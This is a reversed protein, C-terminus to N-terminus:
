RLAQLQKILIQYNDNLRYYGIRELPAKILNLEDLHHADAGVAVPVELDRIKTFLEKFKVSYYTSYASNFEYFINYKKLFDCLQNLDGHIFYSPDFHALGLMPLAKGKMEVREKWSDILNETFKLTEASNLYELLILDFQSPHILKTIYDFSTGLDVEIGKLVKLEANQSLLRKNQDSISKLYLNIKKYTDLTKIVGAKWSNSFHDTLAIYDFQLELARQVIMDVTNAGDSFRSHIHLNIRPFQSLLNNQM